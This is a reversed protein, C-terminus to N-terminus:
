AGEGSQRLLFDRDREQFCTTRYRAKIAFMPHLEPPTLCGLDGDTLL